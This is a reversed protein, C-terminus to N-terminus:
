VRVPWARVGAILLLEKAVGQGLRLGDNRV